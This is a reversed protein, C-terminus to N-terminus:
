RDGIALAARPVEDTPGLDRRELGRAGAGLALRDVQRRALHDLVAAETGGVRVERVAEAVADAEVAV